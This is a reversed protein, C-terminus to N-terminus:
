LHGLAVGAATMLVDVSLETRAKPKPGRKGPARAAGAEIINGTNSTSLKM